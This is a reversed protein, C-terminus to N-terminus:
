GLTEAVSFLTLVANGFDKSKQTLKVRSQEDVDDDARLRRLCYRGEEMVVVFPPMGTLTRHCELIMQFRLPGHKGPVVQCDRGAPVRIGDQQFIRTCYLHAPIAKTM